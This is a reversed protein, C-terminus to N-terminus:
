ETVPASRPTLIVATAIAAATLGLVGTALLALGAPWVTYSVIEYYNGDWAGEFDATGKASLVIGVVLSVMPILWVLTWVFQRAGALGRSEHSPQREDLDQTQAPYQDM